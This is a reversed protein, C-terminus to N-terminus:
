LDAVMEGLGLERLTEPLPRGKEDWGMAEYYTALMQPWVPM